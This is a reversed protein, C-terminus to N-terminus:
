INPRIGYALETPASWTHDQMDASVTFDKGLVMIEVPVEMTQGDTFEALLKVKVHATM